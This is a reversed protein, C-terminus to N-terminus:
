YVYTIGIKSGVSPTGLLTIDKEGTIEFSSGETQVLGNVDLTVISKIDYDLFFNLGSSYTFIETKVKLLKGFNDLIISNKGKYYIITVISFDPIAEEFTIRSTYAIHYYHVDKTQIIGNIAVTFLTGIFEGVNFLTQGGIAMQNATVINVTKSIFKKSIANQNVFEYMTFLRNIAPKVEFEESDILYGLMTFQYNQIYFRRGDITEIPSNDEIKDLVIPIYHGKITTYDQRSAFHKLVIKNFKNLDRFKGCVISVDFTVDVPIPQPITYIDAGMTTGNWNPVAAYYIQHRDPITRQVSPNTGFQVDPKRITAIFPLKLNNDEDSFSWNQTFEGWRQITLIKDIIPIQTGDSVVKFTNKIYDLMGRDLDDHLISDPLYTDSKTIRDLLEQRRAVGESEKYIQINNKRKKPIGM